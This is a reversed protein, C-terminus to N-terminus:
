NFSTKIAKRSKVLILVTAPSHCLEESSVIPPSKTTTFVMCSYSLAHMNIYCVLQMSHVITPHVVDIAKNKVNILQLLMIHM